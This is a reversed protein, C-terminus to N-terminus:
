AIAAIERLADLRIIAIYTGHKFTAIPQRRHDVFTSGTPTHVLQDARIM